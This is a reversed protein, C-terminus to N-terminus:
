SQPRTPLEFPPRNVGTRYSFVPVQSTAESLEPTTGQGSLEKAQMVQADLETQFRQGAQGQTAHGGLERAPITQHDLEHQPKMNGGQTVTGTHQYNVLSPVGLEANPFNMSGARPEFGPPPQQTLLYPQMGPHQPAYQQTQIGRKLRRERHLAVGDGIVGTAHLISRHVNLLSQM